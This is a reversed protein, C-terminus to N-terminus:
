FVLVQIDIVDSTCSEMMSFCKVTFLPYCASFVWLDLYVKM